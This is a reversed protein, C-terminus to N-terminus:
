AYDNRGIMKLCEEICAAVSLLLLEPIEEAPRLLTTLLFVREKLDRDKWPQSCRLLPEGSADLVRTGSVPDPIMPLAAGPVEFRGDRDSWLPSKMRAVLTEHTGMLWITWDAESEREFRWQQDGSVVRWDRPRYFEVKAHWEGFLAEFRPRGLRWAGVWRIQPMELRAPDPNWANNSEPV